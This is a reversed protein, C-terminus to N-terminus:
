NVSAHDDNDSCRDIMLRAMELLAVAACGSRSFISNARSQELCTLQRSVDCAGSCSRTLGSSVEPDASLGPM